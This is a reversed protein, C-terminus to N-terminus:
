NYTFLNSLLQLPSDKKIKSGQDKTISVIMYINQIKNSM